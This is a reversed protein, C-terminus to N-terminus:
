NKVTVTKVGSTSTGASVYGVAGPNSRVFDIIEKENQLEVPPVGKGTFIKKQWYANIASISKGHISNTFTERVDSNAALDVPSVKIGNDWKTTKKLFLRSLQESSISTVDNNENVIVKINSQTYGSGVFLLLCIVFVYKKINKM